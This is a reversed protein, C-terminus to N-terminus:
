EEEDFDIPIERVDLDPHIQCRQLHQLFLEEDLEAYLEAVRRYNEEGGDALIEQVLPTIHGILWARDQIGLVVERCLLLNGHAVSALQVLEPLLSKKIDDDVSWKLYELATRTDAGQLTRRLILIKNKACQFFRYRAADLVHQAECLEDWLEEDTLLENM